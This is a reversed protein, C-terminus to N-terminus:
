MKLKLYLSLKVITVCKRAKLCSVTSSRNKRISKESFTLYVHACKSNYYLWAYLNHSNIMDSWYSLLQIFGAPMSSRFNNQGLPFLMAWTCERLLKWISWLILSWYEIKRIWSHKIVSLIHVCITNYWEESIFMRQMRYSKLHSCGSYKTVSCIYANM